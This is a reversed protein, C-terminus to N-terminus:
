ATGEPALEGLLADNIDRLSQQLERIAATLDALEEDDPKQKEVDDTDRDHM